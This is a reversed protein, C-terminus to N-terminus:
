FNYQWLINSNTEAGLEFRLEAMIGFDVLILECTSLPGHNNTCFVPLCISFCHHAPEIPM